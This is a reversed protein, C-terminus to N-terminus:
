VLIVCNLEIAIFDLPLLNVPSPNPNFKQFKHLDSVMMIWTLFMQEMGTIVATLISLAVQNTM